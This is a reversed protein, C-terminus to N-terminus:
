CRKVCQCLAMIATLSATIIAKHRSSIELKFQNYYVISSIEFEFQNYYM